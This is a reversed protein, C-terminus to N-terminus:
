SGASIGKSRPVRGDALPMVPPAVAGEDGIDNRGVIELVLPPFARTATIASMVSRLRTSPSNRAVCAESSSRTRARVM